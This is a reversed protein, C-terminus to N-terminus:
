LKIYYIYIDILDELTHERASSWMSGSLWQYILITM